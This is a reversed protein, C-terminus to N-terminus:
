KGAIKDAESFMSKIANKCNELRRKKPSELNELYSTSFEKCNAMDDDLNYKIM